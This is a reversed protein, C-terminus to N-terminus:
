AILRDEIAGAGARRDGLRDVRGSAGGPDGHGVRDAHHLRHQRRRHHRSRDNRHQAIKRDRLRGAIEPQLINYTGASGCCLHAEPIEKVVFGCAALLDRRNGISASAMSCRAPRTIPSPSVPRRPRRCSASGPWINRSTARRPELGTAARAAYAPDTRLMFGYDKVTTGCGSITILIADLGEGEIDGTWADINARAKAFAGEERGLHHELSGCCGRRRRSWSRSATATSCASPPRGHDLAGAGRQRLRCAAGGAGQAPWRAPYVGPETM